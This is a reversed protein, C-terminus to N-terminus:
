SSGRAYNIGEKTLTKVIIVVGVALATPRQEKSRNVAAVQTEDAVSFRWV